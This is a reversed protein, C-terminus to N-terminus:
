DVGGRVIGGVQGDGAAVGVVEDGPQRRVEGGRPIEVHRGAGVPDVVAGGARDGCGAQPVEGAQDRRGVGGGGGAVAVGGEIDEVRQQGVVVGGPRSRAPFANELTADIVEVLLEAHALRHHPALKEEQLGHVPDQLGGTSHATR